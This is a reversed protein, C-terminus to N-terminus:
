EYFLSQSEHIGMSTGRCLPTGILEESINQEYLAHGGEHITGFVAMRWDNDYYRTTIRVDGPNLGTAFPHITEDLRGAGFDYGMQELIKLSFERQKEKPFPQYLFDTEQKNGSENIKQILPAIAGKLTEFEKDITEVTVGPEYLDLLTDYKNGKYGW